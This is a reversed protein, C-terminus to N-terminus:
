FGLWDRGGSGANGCLEGAIRFAENPSLLKTASRREPDNEFYIYALKRRTNDTVVFCADLEEVFWPLPFVTM